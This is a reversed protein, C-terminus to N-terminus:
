TCTNAWDWGVIDHMGRTAYSQETYLGV